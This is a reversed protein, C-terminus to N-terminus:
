AKAIDSTVVYLNYGEKALELAVSEGVKDEPLGAILAWEGGYRQKLELRTKPKKRYLSM